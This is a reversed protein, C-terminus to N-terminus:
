FIIYYNTYVQEVEAQLTGSLLRDAEDLIIVSLNRFSRLVDPHELHHVLRGPTAVVIYPKDALTKTQPLWSDGGVILCIKEKLGLSAAFASFQEFVQVALEKTPLLVLSFIGYPDNSLQQLTPLCYCATKGSGTEAIGILDRGKLIQPITKKQIETPEFIKLSHCTKCLSSILGLREM